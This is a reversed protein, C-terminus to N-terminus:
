RTVYKQRVPDLGCIALLKGLHDCCSIARRMFAARGLCLSAPLVVAYVVVAALSKLAGTTRQRPDSLSAKGRLLARKLHFATRMREPPILEHVPVDCWVFTRGAEIARRFFDRDEGGSGFERRFPGLVGDLATRKLLVNGTRTETWALVQGAQPEPREFLAAEIMWRPPPVEFRPRVPGLVGDAGYQRLACLMDLLWTADPLEDDDIFALFDGTAQSVAKNRALAINQEPEVTYTTSLPSRQRFSEVTARASEAADNDVVILSYVFKGDTAQESLAQLLQELMRPRKFTCVCVSIHPLIATM